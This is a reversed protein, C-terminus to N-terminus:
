FSGAINAFRRDNRLFRRRLFISMNLRIQFNRRDIHSIIPTLFYDIRKDISGDSIVIIDANSFKRIGAITSAIRGAENYAPIIIVFNDMASSM